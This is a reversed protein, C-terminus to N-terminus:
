ISRMKSQLPAFSQNITLMATSIVAYFRKTKGEESALGTRQPCNQKRRGMKKDILRQVVSDLSTATQQESSAAQIAAAAARLHDNATTNNNNNSFDNTTTTTTLQECSAKDEVKVTMNFFEATM